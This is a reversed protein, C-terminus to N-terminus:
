ALRKKKRTTLFGLMASGFLWIASPLPVASVKNFDLSQLTASAFVSSGILSAFDVNILLVQGSNVLIDGLTAGSFSNPEFMLNDKMQVGDADIDFPLQGASNTFTHGRGVLSTYKLDQDATISISYMGNGPVGFSLGNTNQRFGDAGRSIATITFNVGDVLDTTVADGFTTTYPTSRFDITGASVCSAYLLAISISIFITKKM